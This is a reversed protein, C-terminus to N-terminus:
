PHIVRFWATVAVWLVGLAYVSVVATNVVVGRSKRRGSAYGRVHLLAAMGHARVLSKVVVPILVALYARMKAAFNGSTDLGRARQAQLTVDMQRKMVPVVSLTLSVMIGLDENVDGAWEVIALPGSLILLGYMVTVFCLLRAVILMAAFFSQVGIFGVYDTSGPYAWSYVIILSLSVWAVSRWSTLVPLLRGLAAAATLMLGLQVCLGAITPTLAIAILGCSALFLRPGVPVVSLGVPAPLAGPELAPLGEQAREKV